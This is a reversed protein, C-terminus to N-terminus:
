RLVPVECGLRVVCRRNNEEARERQRWRSGNESASREISGPSEERGRERESWWCRVDCQLLPSATFQSLSFLALSM